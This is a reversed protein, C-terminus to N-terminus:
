QYIRDAWLTLGHTVSGFNDGASFRCNYRQSLFEKVLPSSASGGTLFIEDPLGGAQTIVDDALKAIQSLLKTACQQWQLQEVDINLNPRLYSLDVSSSAQKSLEIKAQEASASLRYSLRQEQLAILGEIANLNDDKCLEILQRKTDSEYFRAQAPFSNISAADTFPQKPVPLGNSQTLNSGLHPMLAFQNLAIDFDNGGIREGSYGCVLDQHEFKNLYGPGMLLMSVDSTGGGIDIVMVKSEQSLQEQYALGAAMPEYLFEVQEIGVFKAANRLIDLAQRNSQESDLGQFNVPRGIVIKQLRKLGHQEVQQILHLIMAAAIDEFQQQQAVSLGTAGLFSKPSRVYYCDSPDILYEKLAQQGFELNEPYGDLKLENYARLSASLQSQRANQYHHQRGQSELNRFLWASIMQSQPAFVTSPMYQGHEPLTIISAKGAQMHGLACNSTGFDLGAIMATM